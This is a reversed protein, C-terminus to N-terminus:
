LGVPVKLTPFECGLAGPRRLSLELQNTLLEVLQALLRLAGRRRVGVLHVALRVALRGGLSGVAQSVPAYRPLTDLASKGM